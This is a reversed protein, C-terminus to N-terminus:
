LPFWSMRNLNQNEKIEDKTALIVDSYFERNKLVSYITIM